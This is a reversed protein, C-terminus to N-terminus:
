AGESFKDRAALCREIRRLVSEKGLIALTEFIAPSVPGGSVAIRIPQAVKGLKGGAHEDVYATVAAELSPVSWESVGNLIPAVAELHHFGNPDGKALAKRTAKTVEVEIESDDRVFFRSSEIPGELTKSRVQNAAALMAFEAEGLREV